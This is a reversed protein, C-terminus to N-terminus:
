APHTAVPQHTAQKRDAHDPAAAAAAASWSTAGLGLATLLVLIRRWLPRYRTQARRLQDM